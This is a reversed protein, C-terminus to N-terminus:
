LIKTRGGVDFEGTDVKQMEASARIDIATGLARCLGEIGPFLTESSIGIAALRALFDAKLRSPIILKTHLQPGKEVESFESAMLADHSQFIDTCFSFTGRQSLCRPNQFHTIMHYVCPTDDSWLLDEESRNKFAGHKKEVLPVYAHDCICYIVGDESPAGDCAFFAAVYPSDSWDLLRTPCGYHQMLTMWRLVNFRAFEVSPMDSYVPFKTVFERLMTRELAHAFEAKCVGNVGLRRLLTPELAWSADAQGRFSWLSGHWFAGGTNELVSVFNLWGDLEYEPWSSGTAKHTDDGM